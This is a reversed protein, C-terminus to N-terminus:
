TRRSLPERVRASAQRSHTLPRDATRAPGGKAPFHPVEPVQSGACSVAHTLPETRSRPEPVPPVWPPGFTRTTGSDQEDVSGADRTTLQAPEMPESPETGEASGPLYRSWADAIHDARYGMFSRGDVKVKIPAV